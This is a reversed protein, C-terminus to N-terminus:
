TEGKYNTASIGSDKLMRTLSQRPLEASLAARSVVGGAKRLLSTLYNYKFDNVIDDLADHYTSTKKTGNIKLEKCVLEKTIEKKNHHKVMLRETVHKLERVNGPWNYSILADIALQNFRVPKLNYKKTFYIIFYKFLPLIDEPRERLPPIEIVFTSLRYYLDHRFKNNEIYEEINKNTNAIIRVDSKQTVVSGVKEYQKDEVLRLLKAQISLSTETIEDLLITGGAASEVKGEKHATAGTFAGKTHGFLESEFLEDSLSPCFIKYFPKDRRKSVNHIEKAILDKGVGSEGTLIISASTRGIINIENIIEEMKKSEFVLRERYANLLDENLSIKRIANLVADEIQTPSSTKPLYDMAGNRISSAVIAPRQESSLMIIQALPDNELLISIYEVGTKILGLDIDLLIINHKEKKIIPLVKAPHTFTKLKYKKGLSICMEQIFDQNDDILILNYKSNPKNKM